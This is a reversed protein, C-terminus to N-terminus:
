LIKRYLLSSIEEVLQRSLNLTAKLLAIRVFGSLLTFVAFSIIFFFLISQEEKLGVISIFNNVLTISYLNEPNAIVSIFPVILALSIIECVANIIIFLLLFFLKLKSKKGLFFWFKCLNSIPSKMKESENKRM